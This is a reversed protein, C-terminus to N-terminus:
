VYYHHNLCKVGGGFICEGIGLNICGYKRRLFKCMCGELIIGVLVCHTCTVKWQDSTFCPLIHHRIVEAPLMERVGLLELMGHVRHSIKVRGTAASDQEGHQFEFLQPDVVMIEDFLAKFRGSSM